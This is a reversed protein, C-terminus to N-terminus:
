LILTLEDDYISLLVVSSEGVSGPGTALPSGGKALAVLSGNSIDKPANSTDWTVNAQTGIVWGEQANPTLVTPDFIDLAARKIPNASVATASIIAALAFISRSIFM